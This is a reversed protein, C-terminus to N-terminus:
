SSETLNKFRYNIPYIPIGNIRHSVHIERFNDDLKDDLCLFGYCDVYGFNGLFHFGYISHNEELGEAIKQCDNFSFHNKSLDLHLVSSNKQFFDIM